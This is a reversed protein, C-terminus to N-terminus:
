LSKVWGRRRKLKQATKKQQKKKHCESNIARLNTEDDTGGRSLPIIHDVENAVRVLGLRTCGDCQCLYNDRELIAIRLRRWPRGGRGNGWSQQIPVTATNKKRNHPNFTRPSTPM